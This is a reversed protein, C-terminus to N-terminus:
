AFVFSSASFIIHVAECSLARFASDKLYKLRLVPTMQDLYIEKFTFPDYNQNLAVLDETLEERFDFSSARPPKNRGFANIIFNQVEGEPELNYEELIEKELKDRLNTIYKIGDDTAETEPRPARTTYADRKFVQDISSPTAMKANGILSIEGFGEFGIGAKAIAISPMPIGGIQEARVLAEPM